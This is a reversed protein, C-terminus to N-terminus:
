PSRVLRAAVWVLGVLLRPLVGLAVLNVDMRHLGWGRGEDIVLVTSGQRFRHDNLVVAVTLVGVLWLVALSSAVRGLPLRARNM